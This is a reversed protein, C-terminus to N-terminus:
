DVHNQTNCKASERRVHVHSMSDKEWVQLGILMDKREERDHRRLVAMIDRAIRYLRVIMERRQWQVKGM